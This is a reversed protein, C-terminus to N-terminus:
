YGGCIMVVKLGDVVCQKIERNNQLYKMWNKVNWSRCWISYLFRFYGNWNDIEFGRFHLVMCWVSCNLATQMGIQKLVCSLILCIILYNLLFCAGKWCLKRGSKLKFFCLVNVTLVNCIMLFYCANSSLDDEITFM